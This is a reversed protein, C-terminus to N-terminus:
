NQNHTSNFTVPDRSIFNLITISLRHYYPFGAGSQEQESGTILFLLQPFLNWM